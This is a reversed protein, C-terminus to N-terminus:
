QIVTGPKDTSKWGDPTAYTFWVHDLAQHRTPSLEASVGLGLDFKGLSEAAHYASQRTLDRGAQDLVALLARANIFGELSGFTYKQQIVYSGDAISPRVDNGSFKDMAARYDRVVPVSVDDYHPVTQTNILNVTLKQKSKKQEEALLHLMQDAGVFSVDHIPVSWEASRADRIFAGCAQYSGIMIVADVGADRLIKVQADASVSYSQGRPYRAEAALEAGHEKLARVTGERGDVGYADDQLNIGIKHKGATWFVDVAAKTEEYYSARVNFTVQFNPPKRQPQAGTFNSFYFLGVDEYYKRVVPLARVITPTGVGGFLAFVGEQEVLKIVAPAAREADYADDALALRIKRGHVGGAENAVAFAAQEGRWLEIGLGASPGTFAAPEGLVIETDTVGSAVPKPAAAAAQAAPQAPATDAAPEAKHCGAGVVLATCGVLAFRSSARFSRQLASITM